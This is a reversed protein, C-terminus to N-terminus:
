GDVICYVGQFKGPPGRAMGRSAALSRRVGGPDPNKLHSLDFFQLNPRPGHPSLLAPDIGRPFVLLISFDYAGPRNENSSDGPDTLKRPMLRVSRFAAFARALRYWSAIEIEPIAARSQTQPCIVSASYASFCRSNVSAWEAYQDCGFIQIGGSARPAKGRLSGGFMCCIAGRM